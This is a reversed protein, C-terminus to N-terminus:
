FNVLFRSKQQKKVGVKSAWLRTFPKKVKKRNKERKKV